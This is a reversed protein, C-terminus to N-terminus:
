FTVFTPSSSVLLSFFLLSAIFVLILLIIFDILQESAKQIMTLSKDVSSVSAIGNIFAILDKTSTANADFEINAISAKKKKNM